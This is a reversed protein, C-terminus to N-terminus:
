PAEICAVNEADKFEALPYKTSGLIDPNILFFNNRPWRICPMVNRSQMRPRFRLHKLPPRPSLRHAPVAPRGTRRGAKGNRVGGSALQPNPSLMEDSGFTGFTIPQM